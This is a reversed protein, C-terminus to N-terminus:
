SCFKFHFKFKALHWVKNTSPARPRYPNDINTSDSFEAETYFNLEYLGGALVHSSMVTMLIFTILLGSLKSSLKNM